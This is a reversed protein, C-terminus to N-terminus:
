STKLISTYELWAASIYMKDTGHAVPTLGITITQSGAGIDANGLTATKELYSATQNTGTTDVVKTDGENIFWDVTFGVADTTSESAIRCHFVIDASVDLDPPLVTQTTIQVVETAAWNLRQVGDTAGNAAELIPVTDSGFVGGNAAINGVDFNTTIRWGNLPLPICNQASLVDQYLEDLADETTAASTFGSADAYSVTAATTSLVGFPSFECIDGAATAADLAIGTASGNSTDSIQGDAAGYLTAGRSFTDAAYGELTGGWMNLKVSVDDGDSVDAEVIGIGQEGADAYIVEPPDTVTGPEVKVRRYKLLDEGAQFTVIEKTYKSM